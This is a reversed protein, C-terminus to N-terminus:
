LFHFNLWTVGQKISKLSKVAVLFIEMCRSGVLRITNRSLLHSVYFHQTRVSYLAFSTCVCVYMCAYMCVDTFCTAYLGDYSSVILM